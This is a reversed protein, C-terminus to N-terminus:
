KQKERQRVALLFDNLEAATRGQRELDCVKDMVNAEDWFSRAKDNLSCLPTIDAEWLPGYSSASKLLSIEIHFLRTRKIWFIDDNEEASQFKHKVLLNKLDARAKSPIPQLVLPSQRPHSGRADGPPLKTIKIKKLSQKSKSMNKTKEM